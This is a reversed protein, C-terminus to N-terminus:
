IEDRGVVKRRRLLEGLPVDDDDEEEEEGDLPIMDEDEVEEDVGYDRLRDGEANTWGPEGDMGEDEENRESELDVLEDEEDLEAIIGSRFRDGGNRRRFDEEQRRLFARKADAPSAYQEGFGAGRGPPQYSRRLKDPDPPPWMGHHPNFDNEEYSWGTGSGSPHITPNGSLPFLWLLPNRTGMASSVNTYMDIDYPFEIQSLTALTHSSLDLSSNPNAYRDLLSEHREIEWSEIMTTNFLLNKLTTVLLIALALFVGGALLALITLTTLSALSPGLYSPLHRSAWIGSARRFILLSLHLLSLNTYILFRLFHPFTQLSVCTGTWPCHHDMKPICRNCHRCHHARPPKPLQCKKCWRKTNTPTASSSPPPYTGPNVTCAKYYTWWLCLLLTNLTVTESTTLPGSGLNSSTNFLYQSFYGLFLILLVVTPIALVQLGRTSPGTPISTM